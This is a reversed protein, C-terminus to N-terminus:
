GAKAKILQGGKKFNKEFLVGKELLRCTVYVLRDAVSRLARNHNHGRERLAIYRAKSVPDHQVAVRAWHYTADSLKKHSARRQKVRKSKGSRRTVPAVGTLNRLAMENRRCLLEYSEGILTSLVVRGVGPVSRLIEIDSPKNGEQERQKQERNKQSFSSILHDMQRDTERIQRFLIELREVISKIRMVCGKVTAESVDMEKSGLIEKVGRADIRRVKHLKLLKEITGPRKRRAVAATPALKWLELIWPNFSEGIIQRFQPYYEWLKKNMRSILRGRENVLEDRMRSFECLLMVEPESPKLPRFHRIDTRLSDALVYADRRDDKAGSPSFKDRLRDLQRPNVSYAGFGHKMLTEVVPGHPIEIAVGIQQSASRSVELIWQVMEGLGEGGHAFSQEGLISGAQDIVCVQHFESGWDVGAFFKHNVFKM